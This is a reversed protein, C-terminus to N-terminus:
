VAHYDGGGVALDFWGCRSHGEVTPRQARHAVWRLAVTEVRHARHRTNGGVVIEPRIERHSAARVALDTDDDVAHRSSPQLVRYVSALVRRRQRHKAASDEIAAC